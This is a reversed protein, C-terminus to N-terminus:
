GIHKPIGPDVPVTLAVVFGALNAYVAASVTFEVSTDAIPPLASAVTCATCCTKSPHDGSPQPMEDPTTMGAHHHAHGEREVGSTQHGDAHRTHEVGDEHAAMHSAIRLTVGSAVLALSLLGAFACRLIRRM